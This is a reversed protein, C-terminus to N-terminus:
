MCTDKDIGPIATGTGMVMILGFGDRSCLWDAMRVLLVPVPEEEAARTVMTVAMGADVALEVVLVEVEPVVECTMMDVPELWVVTSGELEPM